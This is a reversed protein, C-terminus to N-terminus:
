SPLALIGCTFDAAAVLLPMDAVFQAAGLVALLEHLDHSSDRIEQLFRDSKYGLDFWEGQRRWQALVRHAHHEDDVSTVKTTSVIALPVSSGVQLTALRGKPDRAIGIKFRTSGTAHIVYLIPRKRAAKKRQRLKDWLGYKVQRRAEREVLGAERESTEKTTGRYRRCDVKFEYHWYPSRPCRYLGM